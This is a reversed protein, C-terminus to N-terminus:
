TVSESAVDDMLGLWGVGEEKRLHLVSASHACERGRGVMDRGRRDDDNPSASSHVGGGRSPPSPQSTIKANHTTKQPLSAHETNKRRKKERQKRRSPQMGSCKIVNRVTLM